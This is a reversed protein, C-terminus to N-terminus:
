GIMGPVDIIRDALDFAIKLGALLWFPQYGLRFRGPVQFLLRRRELFVAQYVPCSHSGKHEQGRIDLPPPPEEM